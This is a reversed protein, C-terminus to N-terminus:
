PLERAYEVTLPSAVLCRAHTDDATLLATVRAYGRMWAATGAPTRADIAHLLDRVGSGHLGNGDTSTREPSAVASQGDQETLSRMVHGANTM